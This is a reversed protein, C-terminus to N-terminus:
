HQKFACISRSPRTRHNQDELTWLKNQTRGRGTAHRWSTNNNKNKVPCRASEVKLTNDCLFFLRSTNSNIRLQLVIYQAFSNFEVILFPNIGSPFLRLLRLCATRKVATFGISSTYPILSVGRWKVFGLIAGYLTSPFRTLICYMPAIQLESLFPKCNKGSVTVHLRERCCVAQLKCQSLPIYSFESPARGSPASLESLVVLRAVISSAIHDALDVSGLRLIMKPVM